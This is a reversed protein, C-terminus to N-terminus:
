AHDNQYTRRGKDQFAGGLKEKQEKSIGYENVGQIFLLEHGINVMRGGLTWNMKSNVQKRLRIIM